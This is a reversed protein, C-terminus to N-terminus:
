ADTCHGLLVLGMRANGIAFRGGCVDQERRHAHARRRLPRRGPAVIHSTSSRGTSVGQFFLLGGGVATFNWATSHLAHPLIRSLVALLLVLYALM